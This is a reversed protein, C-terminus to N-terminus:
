GGLLVRVSVPGVGHPLPVVDGDIPEGGVVLAVANGPGVREVEIEHVVGRFLRQAKFGNWTEPLAPAVQLGRYTPRIGLIWQTAAM